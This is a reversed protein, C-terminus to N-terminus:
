FYSFSVVLDMPLRIGKKLQQRPKAFRTKGRLPLSTNAKKLAPCVKDRINPLDSTQKTSQLYHITARDPLACIAFKRWRPPV